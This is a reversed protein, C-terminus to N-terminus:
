KEFLKLLQYGEDRSKENPFAELFDLVARRDKVENFNSLCM